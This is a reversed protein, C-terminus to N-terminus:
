QKILFIIYILLSIIIFHIVLFLCAYAYYRDLIESFIPDIIYKSIKERTDKKKLEESFGNILDQTIPGVYSM